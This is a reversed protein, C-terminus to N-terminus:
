YPNINAAGIEHPDAKPHEYDFLRRPKTEVRGFGVIVCHVAAVGRAENNWRFTRHAFQIHFGHALLEGWLVSVQEGQTISNTSVFAVRISLDGVYHAAKLYWASVFDLLGAGNLDGAVELLSARQDATMLKAGIFPP